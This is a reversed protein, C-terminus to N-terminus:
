GVAFDRSAINSPCVIGTTLGLAVVNVADILRAVVLLTSVQTVSICGCYYGSTWLLQVRHLNRGAVACIARIQNCYYILLDVLSFSGTFSHLLTCFVASITILYCPSHV